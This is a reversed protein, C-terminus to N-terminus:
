QYEYVPLQRVKSPEVALRMNDVLRVLSERIRGEAQLPSAPAQRKWNLQCM